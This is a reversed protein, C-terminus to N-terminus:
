EGRDPYLSPHGPEIGAARLEADVRSPRDQARGMPPSNPAPLDDGDALSVAMLDRVQDWTTAAGEGIVEGRAGELLVFYPAGPIRYDAWATSSLVTHV